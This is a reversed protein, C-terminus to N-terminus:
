TNNHLQVDKCTETQFQPYLTLVKERFQWIKRCFFYRKRRKVVKGTSRDLSERYIRSIRYYRGDFEQEYGAALHKTRTTVASVQPSLTVSWKCAPQTLLSLVDFNAQVGFRMWRTKAELDSYYHGQKDLM